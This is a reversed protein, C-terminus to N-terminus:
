SLKPCESANESLYIGTCKAASAAQLNRFFWSKALGLDGSSGCVDRASSPLESRHKLHADPKPGQSAASQGQSQAMRRPYLPDPGDSGFGFARLRNHTRCGRLRAQDLRGRRHRFRPLPAIPNWDLHTIPATCPVPWARPKRRPPERSGGAANSAQRTM